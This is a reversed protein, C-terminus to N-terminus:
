RWTLVQFVGQRDKLRQPIALLRERCISLLVGAAFVLGGGLAMYVGIALQARMGASSAHAGGRGLPRQGAPSTHKFPAQTVSGFRGSHESACRPPTQAPACRSQTGATWEVRTAPAVYFGCDVGAGPASDGRAPACQPEGFM